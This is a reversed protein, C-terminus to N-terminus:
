NMMFSFFFPSLSPHFIFGRQRRSLLPFPLHTLLLSCLAPTRCHCRASVPAAHAGCPCASRCIDQRLM